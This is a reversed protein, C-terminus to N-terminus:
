RVSPTPRSDQPSAGPATPSIPQITSEEDLGDPYATMLNYRNVVANLTAADANFSKVRANYDTVHQNFLDGRRITANKEEASPAPMHDANGRASRANVDDIARALETRERELDAAGDDVARRENDLRSSESKIAALLHVREDRTSPVGEFAGEDSLRQLTEQFAPGHNTLTDGISLLYEHVMEHALVRDIQRADSRFQPNLLILNGDTFGELTFGEAMLPGVEHLASEWIVPVEPLKNAFHKANFQRYKRLLDLDGSAGADDRLIEQERMEAPSLSRVPPSPVPRPAIRPNSTARGVMPTTHKQTASQPGTTRSFQWVIGGGVVFAVAAMELLRGREM